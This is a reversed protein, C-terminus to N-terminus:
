AVYAIATSLLDPWVICLRYFHYSACVSGAVEFGFADVLVFVAFRHAFWRLRHAVCSICWPAFRILTGSM